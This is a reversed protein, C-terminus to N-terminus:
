KLSQLLNSLLDSQPHRLPEVSPMGSSESSSNSLVLLLSMQLIVLPMVSSKFSAHSPIQHLCKRLVLRLDQHLDLLLNMQPIKSANIPSESSNKILILQLGNPPIASPKSSIELLDM